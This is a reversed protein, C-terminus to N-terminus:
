KRHACMSPKLPAALKSHHGQQSTFGTAPEIATNVNLTRPPKWGRPSGVKLFVVVKFGKFSLKRINMIQVINVIVSSHVSSWVAGHRHSLLGFVPYSGLDASFRRVPSPTTGAEEFASRLWGGGGEGALLLGCCSKVLAVATAACDRRTSVCAEKGM